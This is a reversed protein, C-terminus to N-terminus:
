ILEEYKKIQKTMKKNEKGLRGNEERLQEMEEKSQEIKKSMRGNEDELQRYRKLVEASNTPEVTNYHSYYNHPTTETMFKPPRHM